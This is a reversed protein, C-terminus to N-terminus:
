EGYFSNFEDALRRWTMRDANGTADLGNASQFIRIAEATSPTYVGSITVTPFDYHYKLTNLMAQLIVVIDSREGRPTEYDTYDPIPKIYVPERLTREAEYEDRIMEWTELDAIGTVSLGRSAQYNRVALETGLDYIGSVNARLGIENKAFSIYRLMRQLMEVRGVEDSVNVFM